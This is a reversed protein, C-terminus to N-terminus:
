QALLYIQLTDTKMTVYYNKEHTYWLKSFDDDGKRPYKPQKQNYISLSAAIVM